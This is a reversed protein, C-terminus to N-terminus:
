VDLNKVSLANSQIFERRAEVADGMLTTFLQDSHVPDDVAVQVLTRNEPNMTTEWLQEPNMEGLGKYRQIDYGKRARQLSTSFLASWGHVEKGYVTSPLPLVANLQEIAAILDMNDENLARLAVHKEEGSQLVRLNFRNNAVEKGIVHMHPYSINLSEIFRDIVPQAAEATSLDVNYGGAGLWIDWIEPKSRSALMKVRKEYKEIVSFAEKLADGELVTGDPRQVTCDKLSEGMLFTELGKEDKIYRAKKGKKVRYLPPQAIYLHNNLILEPMQRYFFTLLLTRIHSGDVDADTMIIIRHYRLKTIDFEAGIGAGLASIMTRIEQNGLMRDFRAKEVNLIKGRLPLIAQYKRDRGQKASGGASDGEVLYLECLEPNKEQCDALKGPLEGGELASKRRALDRAKRAADRARAADVAKGVVTRSFQPNEAIYAGLAEGVIVEVAGKVESNGLKGKTQGEFQPEVVRVSVIACLGERIDDGSLSELGKALKKETLYNNITRTLAAKFGSVHTGGDITNINNVFSILSSTYASTWQLAVDVEVDKHKGTVYVVDDHLTTKSQNLFEVYERIGGEYQYEAEWDVREDKFVIKLGPNLFALEQLRRALVDKSFIITEQFIESDPFFQVCTGRQETDGILQLEQLKKGRSYRQSYQKGDRWILVQLWESLANVCSVGVGHLGGSVKYNDKNFKGGAHLTTLVLEAAPVQHKPHIDTPIGRGNDLVSCSGDEHIKVLIETCHGALAEDISNDVVEYVMHHLGQAATSGIYMAPRKRVAELGELVDINEATYDGNQEIIETEELEETGVDETTQEPKQTM